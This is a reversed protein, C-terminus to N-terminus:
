SHYIQVFALVVQIFTLFLVIITLFINRKDIKSFERQNTINLLTVAQIITRHRVMENPVGEKCLLTLVKNIKKDDWEEFKESVFYDWATKEIDEFERNDSKM